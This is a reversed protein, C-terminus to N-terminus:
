KSSCLMQLLIVNLNCSFLKKSNYFYQHTLMLPVQTILNFIFHVGDTFRVLQSIATIMLARAAVRSFNHQSIWGVARLDSNHYKSADAGCWTLVFNRVLMGAWSESWKQATDFIFDFLDWTVWIANCHCENLKPERRLEDRARIHQLENSTMIGKSMLNRLHQINLPSLIIQMCTCQLWEKPDNFLKMLCFM